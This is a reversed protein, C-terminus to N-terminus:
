DVYDWFLIKDMVREGSYYDEYQKTKVDYIVNEIIVDESTKVNLRTNYPVQEELVNRWRKEM